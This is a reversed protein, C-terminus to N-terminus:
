IHRTDGHSLYYASLVDGQRTSTPLGTSPGMRQIDWFVGPIEAYYGYYELLMARGDAEAVLPYAAFAPLDVDHDFVLWTELGADTVVVTDTSPWPTRLRHTNM